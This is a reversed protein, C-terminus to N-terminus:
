DHRNALQNAWYMSSKWQDRFRKFYLFPNKLEQTKYYTLFLMLKYGFLQFDTLYKINFLSITPSPKPQVLADDWIQKMKIRFGGIPAKLHTIEINADFLVDEGINRIQM